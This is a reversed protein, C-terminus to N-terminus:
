ICKEHCNEFVINIFIWEYPFFLKPLFVHLEKWFYHWQNTKDWKHVDRLEEHKMSSKEEWWGNEKDHAMVSKTEVGDGVCIACKGSIGKILGMKKHLHLAEVRCKGLGGHDHLHLVKEGKWKVLGELQV